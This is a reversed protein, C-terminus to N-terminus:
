VDGISDLTERLVQHAETLPAIQQVPPLEEVEALKRLVADVKPHGTSARSAFAGASPSAAEAFGYESVETV